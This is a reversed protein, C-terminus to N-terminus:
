VHRGVDPNSANAGTGAATRLIRVLMQMADTLMALFEPSAERILRLCNIAEGLSGYLSVYQDIADRFVTTDEETPNSAQAILSAAPLLHANNLIAFDCVERFRGPPIIRSRVIERFEAEEM